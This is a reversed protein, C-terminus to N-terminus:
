DLGVFAGIDLIKFTDLVSRCRSLSQPDCFGRGTESPIPVHLTSTTTEELFFDHELGEKQLKREIL